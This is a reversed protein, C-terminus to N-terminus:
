VNNENSFVSELATVTESPLTTETRVAVESGFPIKQLLMDLLSTTKIVNDAHIINVPEFPRLIEIIKVCPRAHLGEPILVKFTYNMM